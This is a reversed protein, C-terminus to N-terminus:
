AMGGVKKWQGRGLSLVDDRERILCSLRDHDLAWQRNMKSLEMRISDISIIQGQPIAELMTSIIARLRENTQARSGASM